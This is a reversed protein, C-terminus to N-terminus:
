LRHYGFLHAKCIIRGTNRRWFANGNACDTCRQRKGNRQYVSERTLYEVEGFHEIAGKLYPIHADALIKM